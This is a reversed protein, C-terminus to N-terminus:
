GRTNRGPATPKQKPENPRSDSKEAPRRDRDRSATEEEPSKQTEATDPVEKGAYMGEGAAREKDLDTSSKRPNITPPLKQAPTKSNM